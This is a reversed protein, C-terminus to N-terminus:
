QQRSLIGMSLRGDDQGLVAAFSGGIELVGFAEDGCEPRVRM